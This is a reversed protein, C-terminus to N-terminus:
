RPFIPPEFTATRFNSGWSVSLIAVTGAPSQNFLDAGLLNVSVPVERFPTYSIQANIGRGSWGTSVGVNPSLEVGISGFAGIREQSDTPTYPAFTSNGAGMNIQLTQRFRSGDNRLPIAYSFGASFVDDQTGEYGWQIPNRWAVALALRQDPNSVLYRSVSFGAGGNGCFSKISGCGGSLEIAVFRQPDGLGFGGVWSGDVDPRLNGPTGVSASLFVDGWQAIFASPVGPNLSPAPWSLPRRTLGEIPSSAPVEAPSAPLEPQPAQTNPSPATTESSRAPPAQPPSDTVQSIVELPQQQQPVTIWQRQAYSPMVSECCLWTSAALALHLHNALRGM